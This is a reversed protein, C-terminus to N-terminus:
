EDGDEEVAVAAPQHALEVLHQEPAGARRTELLARALV